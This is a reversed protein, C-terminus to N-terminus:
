HVTSYLVSIYLATFYVLTCHQLTCYHVTSYLVTIYLVTFYLLASYQLTCYHVTSYFATSHLTFTPVWISVWIWARCSLLSLFYIQVSAKTSIRSVSQYRFDGFRGLTSTSIRSVSVPLFWVELTKHPYELCQYQFDCFIGLNRTSVRINSDVFGNYHKIHINKTFCTSWLTEINKTVNM